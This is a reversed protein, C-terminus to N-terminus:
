AIRYICGYLNFTLTAGSQANLHFELNAFSSSALTFCGSHSYMFYNGTVNAGTNTAILDSSEINFTGYQSNVPMTQANTGTAVGLSFTSSYTQGAPAITYMHISAFYVGANLYHSETTSTNVSPSYIFKNATAFSASIKAYNFYYGLSLKTLSPTTGSLNYANSTTIGTITSTGVVTTNGLLGISTSKISTQTSTDSGIVVASGTTLNPGINLTSGIANINTTNLTTITDSASSSYAIILNKTEEITSYNSGTTYFDPNFNIGSFYETPPLESSM